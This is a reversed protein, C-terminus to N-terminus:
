VESYDITLQLEVLNGLGKFLFLLTKPNKEVFPASIGNLFYFTSECFLFFIQLNYIQYPNIDLNYLFELLQVGCFCVIRNFVSYLVQIPMEGFFVCQYAVLM